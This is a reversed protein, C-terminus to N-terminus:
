YAYSDHLWHFYNKYWIKSMTSDVVNSYIEKFIVNCVIDILLDFCIAKTYLNFIKFYGLIEKLFLLDFFKIHDVCYFSPSM